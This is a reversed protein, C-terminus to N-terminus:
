TRRSPDLRRRVAPVVGIGLLVLASLLSVLAGLHLGPPTFSLEVENRGAQVPVGLVVGDARVL